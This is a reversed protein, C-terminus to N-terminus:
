LVGWLSNTQYHSPPYNRITPTNLRRVHCPPTPSPPLPLPPSPSLPLTPSPPSLIIRM